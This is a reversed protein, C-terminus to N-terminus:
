AALLREAEAARIDWRCTATVHAVQMQLRAELAPNKAAFAEAIAAASSVYAQPDINGAVVPALIGFDGVTEPLAGLRSKASEGTVFLVRITPQPQPIDDQALMASSEIPSENQSTELLM